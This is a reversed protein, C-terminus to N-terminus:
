LLYLMYLVLLIFGPVLFLMFREIPLSRRVAKKRDKPLKSLERTLIELGTNLNSSNIYLGGTAIAIELCCDPKNRVIAEIIDAGAACQSQYDKAIIVKM